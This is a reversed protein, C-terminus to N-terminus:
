EITVGDANLNFLTATLFAVHNDAAGAARSVSVQIELTNTADVAGDISGADDLAIAVADGGAVTAAGIAGASNTSYEAGVGPTRTFIWTKAVGAADISEGAGITGGAGSVAFGDIRLLASHAGNPITVTFAATLAADPIATITKKLVVSSAAAGPTDVGLVGLAALDAATLAVVPWMGLTQLHAIAARLEPSPPYKGLAKLAVVDIDDSM